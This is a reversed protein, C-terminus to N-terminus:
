PVPKLADANESFSYWYLGDEIRQFAAHRSARPPNDMGLPVVYLGEEAGRVDALALSFGDAYARVRLPRFRRFSPPCDALAPLFYRRTPAVFLQKYFGAAEGRLTTPGVERLKAEAARRHGGSCGAFGLLAAIWLWAWPKM